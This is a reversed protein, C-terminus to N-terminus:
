PRWPWKPPAHAEEREVWGMLWFIFAWIPFIRFSDENNSRVKGTDTLACAELM